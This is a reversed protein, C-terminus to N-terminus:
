HTKICFVEWHMVEHKPLEEAELFIKQTHPITIHKRNHKLPLWKLIMNWPTFYKQVGKENIYIIITTKM